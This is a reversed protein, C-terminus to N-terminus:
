DPFIGDLVDVLLLTMSINESVDFPHLFGFEWARAM